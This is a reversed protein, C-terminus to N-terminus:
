RGSGTVAEGVSRVVPRGFWITRHSWEGPGTREGSCVILAVRPPGDTDYYPPYGESALVEIRRTVRYCLTRRQGQLVIVDGLDLGGLLANGLASGDAWTHTNLLVNGRHSGPSIGPARDWAFADGDSFPLVGPVDRPDRPLGVVEADEVVGDISLRAPRFPQAAPEACSAPLTPGPLETPASTPAPSSSPSRPAAASRESPGGEPWVLWAVVALVVTLGVAVVVTAVRSRSARGM